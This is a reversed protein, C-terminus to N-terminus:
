PIFTCVLVYKVTRRAAATYLYIAGTARCPNKEADVLQDYDMSVTAYEGPEFTLWTDSSNARKYYSPLYRMMCMNRSDSAGKYTLWYIPVGLDAYKEYLSGSVVKVLTAGQEAAGEIEPDGGPYWFVFEMEETTTVTDAAYDTTDFAPQPDPDPTPESTADSVGEKTVKLYVDGELLLYYDSLKNVETGDNFCLYVSEGNWTGDTVFRKYTVGDVEQTSTSVLGPWETEFEENHVHLYLAEWETQDNVYISYGEKIEPEPEEMAEQTLTCVVYNSWEGMREVLEAASAVQKTKPLAVLVAERETTLPNAACGIQVSRRQLGGEGETSDWEGVTLNVWDADASYAGQSYGLVYVSAGKPATLSAIAAAGELAVGNNYYSGNEDFLLESAVELDCYEEVGSISVEFELVTTPVDGSLDQFLLKGATDKDPYHAWHTDMRFPESVGAEGTTVPLNVWAPIDGGITWPFNAEVRLWHMYGITGEPWVLDLSKVDNEGFLINYEADRAFDGASDLQAAYVKLVRQTRYRTLRAIVQETGQMKLKVECVRDTDYETIDSVQIQVTHKGATGRMTYRLSEGDLIQFYAATEAPVSIEWDMNPNIQLAYVEGASVAAEVLNPFNPEEKPEPAPDDGGSSCSVALLLGLVMWGCRWKLFSKKM